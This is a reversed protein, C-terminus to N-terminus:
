TSSLINGDYIAKQCDKFSHLGMHNVNPKLDLHCASIHISRFLHNSWFRISSWLWSFLLDKILSFIGILGKHSKTWWWKPDKVVPRRELIRIQNIFQNIKQFISQNNSEKNFNPRNLTQSVYCEQIHIYMYFYM